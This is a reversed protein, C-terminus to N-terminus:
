ALLLQSVLVLAYLTLVAITTVAVTRRLIVDTSKHGKM